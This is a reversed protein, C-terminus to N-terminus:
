KTALAEPGSRLVSTVTALSSAHTAVGRSARDPSPCFSVLWVCQRLRVGIVLGAFGSLHGEQPVPVSITGRDPTVTLISPPAWLETLM